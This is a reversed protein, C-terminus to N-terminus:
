SAAPAAPTPAPAPKASKSPDASAPADVVVPPPNLVADVRSIEADVEAVRAQSTDDGKRSALMRREDRLADLYRRQKEEVTAPPSIVSNALAEPPLGSVLGEYYSIENEVDAVDKGAALKSARESQLGALVSRPDAM